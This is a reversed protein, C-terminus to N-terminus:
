RMVPAYRNIARRQVDKARVCNWLEVFDDGRDFSVLLDFDDDKVTRDFAEKESM